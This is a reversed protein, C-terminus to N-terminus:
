APTAMGREMVAALRRAFAAPDAVPEGEIIRAQDLLLHAADALAAEGNGAAAVEALRRILAHAPNIELIRKIAMGPGLQRHQRLLRELRMDMDGEEAILCVPSDTLRDSARVDKVAEGLAGKLAAILADVAPTDAAAATEGAEGTEEVPAVKALDAGSATVSRFPQDKYSAVAPIWFEDVADTLLLVELGRAKFGELQPSRRVHDLDDGTVYYIADQGDRMRGVYEDLGVVAEGGTSHFRALGM